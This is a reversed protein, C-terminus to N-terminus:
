VAEAELEQLEQMLADYEADTIRPQDLVYYYYDHERITQRLRDIRQRVEALEKESEGSSSKM